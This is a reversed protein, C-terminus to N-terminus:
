RPGVRPLKLWDQVREPNNDPQSRGFWPLSFGNQESRNATRPSRNYSRNTGTVRPPTPKSEPPFRGFTLTRMTNDVATKVGNGFKELPSPQGPQRKPLLSIKPLSPTWSSSHRPASPPAPQTQEKAFPNLFSFPSKHQQATADTPLAALSFVIAAVSIAAITRNM